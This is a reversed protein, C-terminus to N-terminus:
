NNLKYLFHIVLLFTFFMNKEKEKEIEIGWFKWFFKTFINPTNCCFIFYFLFVNKKKKINFFNHWKRKREIERAVNCLLFHGGKHVIHILCPCYPTYPFLLSGFISILCVKIPFVFLNRISTHMRGRERKREAWGESQRRERGIKSGKREREEEGREWGRRTFSCLPLFLYGEIIFNSTVMVYYKLNLEWKIINRWMGVIMM